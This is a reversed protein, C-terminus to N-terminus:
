TPGTYIIGTLLLSSLHSDLKVVRNDRCLIFPSGGLEQGVDQVQLRSRFPTVEDRDLGAVPDGEIKGVRRVEARSVEGKQDALRLEVGGEGADSRGTDCMVRIKTALPRAFDVVKIAPAADIEVVRVAVQELQDGAGVARDGQPSSAPRGM